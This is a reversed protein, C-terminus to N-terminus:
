NSTEIHNEIIEYQITDKYPLYDVPTKANAKVWSYIIHGKKYQTDRTSEKKNRSCNTNKIIDGDEIYKQWERECQRTTLLM